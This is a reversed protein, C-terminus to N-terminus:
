SQAAAAMGALYGRYREARRRDNNREAFSILRDLLERYEGDIRQRRSATELLHDVDRQSGERFFRRALTAGARGALAPVDAHREIYETLLERLFEMSIAKNLANAFVTGYVRHQRARPLHAACEVYIQWYAAEDAHNMIAHEASRLAEDVRLDTLLQRIRATKEERERERARTAEDKGIVQESQKRLLLAIVLGGLLGGAHAMYAVPGDVFFHGYLENLLWLPFLLLAPATFRGFWFGIIYFFQIRRFGYAGLYAGMLGSIAGSAGVLPVHSGAHTVIFLGAAVLGALLYIGLLLAPGLVRELAFGFLLLFIMNGILHDLGGHMFMHALLQRADFDAPALGFRVWSLEDRLAEFEERAARWEEDPPSITWHERVAVDFGPSLLEGFHWFWSESDYEGGQAQVFAELLPEEWELLGSEIYHSYVAETREGDGAQYGVFVLICALALALTVWPPRRFDPKQEAPVILM